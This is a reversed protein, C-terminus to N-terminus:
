QPLCTVQHNSLTYYSPLNAAVADIGKDFCYKALEVSEDFVNSAIGAYLTTESTKLNSALDIFDKKLSIPLSASEGTTGLIFPMVRNNSFNAFMKEAAEHDLKYNATLPTVTPVIIGSYKNKSQM